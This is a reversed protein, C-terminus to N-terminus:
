LGTRVPFLVGWQVTRRNYDAYGNGCSHTKIGPCGFTSIRSEPVSTTLPFTSLSAKDLFPSNRSEPTMDCYKFFNPRAKRMFLDIDIFLWTVFKLMGFKTVFQKVIYFNCKIKVYTIDRERWAHWETQPTNM